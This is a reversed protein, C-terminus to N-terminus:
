TGLFVGFLQSHIPSIIIENIISEFMYIKTTPSGIMMMMM